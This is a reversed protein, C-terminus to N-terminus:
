KEHKREEIYTRTNIMKKVEEYSERVEVYGGSVMEIRLNKCDYFPQFYLIHNICLLLPEKDTSTLEIFHVSM